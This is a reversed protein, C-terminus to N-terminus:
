IGDADCRSFSRTKPTIKPTSAVAQTPVPALPTDPSDVPWRFEILAELRDEYIKSDAKEDDSLAQLLRGKMVRTIKKVAIEKLGKPITTAVADLQYRGSFAIAGRVENTVEDIIRPMPDTQSTRLAEQRLADVLEAVTHDDLDALAITIWNPM